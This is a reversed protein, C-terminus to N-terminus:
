ISTLEKRAGLHVIAPKVRFKLSIGENEIANASTGDIQM